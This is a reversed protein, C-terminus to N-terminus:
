LSSITLTDSSGPAGGGGGGGGGTVPHKDILITSGDKVTGELMMKALPNMIHRQIIRKLPRAGYVEDYGIEGLWKRAPDRVQIKMKRDTILKEVEKLRVDVIKGMNNANIRNFLVIEDVRNLFEPAFGQRVVAMVQEKAVSSEVGKGLNALIEAGVNSTMVIMTNRFDVKRGQSDTLHGEDLIQLLINHVSRHAKEFEDFLVVQYPRRRVAETLTGGEEYGVYGPPAGILRSVSFKEMYESMDIRVMANESDFLFSSLQKCLETKGVGTPGLFLFSGLPRNHAHLGARSVRVAHSIASVAEDQGIVKAKLFSEMDLLKEKEGLMLSAVPIGTARCIVEAIDRETVAERLMALDMTEPDDEAPLNRELEPIVGYALRGAEELNGNRQVIALQRKAEELSEKNKKTENLKKKESLWVETLKESEDNAQKIKEEVVLKRELSSRDKEKKLAELEIKLRILQRDLNELPEPKSEQQLRLRSAAEDVLDIAKDPLFRDSIYKHSNVAASVIASDAIRVGHHVEYKEKLGRLISITAEVSPETVYVAQFRRALAPDKEIYKRYENLTTAGVCHLEGRALAPKLMNSADVSGGESAGAGVLTHM